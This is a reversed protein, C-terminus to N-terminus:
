AIQTETPLPATTVLWDQLKNKRQWALLQRDNLIAEAAPYGKPFDPGLILLCRAVAHVQNKSRLGYRNALEPAGEAARVFSEKPYFSGMAAFLSLALARKSKTMQRASFRDFETQTIGFKGSPSTCNGCIIRMLRGQYRDAPDFIDCPADTKSGVPLITKPSLPAILSSFPASFIDWNEPTIADVMDMLVRPDYFRFYVPANQNAPTWVMTFKRLHKRLSEMSWKSHLLIGVHRDQPQSKVLATVPSDKTLRVLWPAVAKTAPNPSAYLCTADARGDLIAVADPWNVADIVAWLPDAGPLFLKDWSTEICRNDQFVPEFGNVLLLGRDDVQWLSHDIADRHAHYAPADNLPRAEHISELAYGKVDIASRVHAEYSTIDRARVVLLGEGTDTEGSWRRKDPTQARLRCTAIWFDNM